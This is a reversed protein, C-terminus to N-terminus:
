AREAASDRRVGGMHGHTESRVPDKQSSMRAGPEKKQQGTDTPEFKSAIIPAVVTQYVAALNPDVPAMDMIEAIIKTEPTTAVKILPDMGAAKRSEGYTMALKRAQYERADEKPNKGTFRVRLHPWRSWVLYENIVNELHILLPALGPDDDDVLATDGEKWPESDKGKGSIRYGLRRVPFRYITCFAGAIMNMFDQYYVEKGKINSMDILELKGDGSLGIVPLAWSKTIGQKLNTWIRNIVDLQRQTVTGGSLTLIGNPTSNRNFTDINLDVANQYGQILRAGIEIEPWGYGLAYPDTRKNRVYFTMDDRTFENRVTGGEDVAVAFIRKEELYGAPGTLRVNGAPFAAFSRVESYRDMDTWIAMADYTLSDRVAETLFRQFDTFRNADRERAQDSKVEVTGNNLFEYCAEIDRRESDSVENLPNKKEIVWGPMWPQTSPQSYRMVDDIRTLIILQPAINERAMKSLSEPPIGPWQLVGKNYTDPMYTIRGMSMASPPINNFAKISELVPDREQFVKAFGSAYDSAAMSNFTPLMIGTRPDAGINPNFSDFGKSAASLVESAVSASVMTTGDANLIM